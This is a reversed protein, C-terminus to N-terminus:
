KRSAARHRRIASEAEDRTRFHGIASDRLPDFWSGGAQEIPTPFNEVTSYMVIQRLCPITYVRGWNASAPFVGSEAAVYNFGMERLHSAFENAFCSGISAVPTDRRVALGELQSGIGATLCRDFNNGHPYVQTGPLGFQELGRHPSPYRRRFDELRDLLRRKLGRPLFRGAFTM